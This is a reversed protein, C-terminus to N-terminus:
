TAVGNKVLITTTTQGDDGTITLKAEKATFVNHSLRIGRKVAESKDCELRGMVEELMTTHNDPMRITISKPKREPEPAAAKPAPKANAAAATAAVVQRVAAVAAPKPKLSLAM